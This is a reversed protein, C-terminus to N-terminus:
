PTSTLRVPCPLPGAGLIVDREAAIAVAEALSETTIVELELQGRAEAPLNGRTGIVAGDIKWDVKGEPHAQMHDRLTRAGVDDLRVLTVPDGAGVHVSTADIHGDVIVAGDPHEVAQFTGPRALTAPITAAVKPDDPLTVEFGFGNTVAVPRPDGLGMRDIRARVLVEAEACGEFTLTQRAGAAPRGYVGAAFLALYGGVLGIGLLVPIVFLVCGRRPATGIVDEEEDSM